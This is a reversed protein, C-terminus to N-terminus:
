RRAPPGAKPVQISQLYALIANVEHLDFVFEPMDPHGTSLGEALAEALWETPYKQGITRFPPAQRHPSNGTPEIAHCRACHKALLAHGQRKLDADDQAAAPSAASLTAILLLRAISMLAISM